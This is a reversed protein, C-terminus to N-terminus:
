KPSKKVSKTKPKKNETTTETTARNPLNDFSFVPRGDPDVTMSFPRDKGIEFASQLNDLYLSKLNEDQNYKSYNNIINTLAAQKEATQADRAQGILQNYTRDFMMANMRDAQMQAQANFM